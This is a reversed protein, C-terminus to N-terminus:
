GGYHDHMVQTDLGESFIEVLTAMALASQDANGPMRNADCSLVAGEELRDVDAIPTEEWVTGSILWGDVDTGDLM